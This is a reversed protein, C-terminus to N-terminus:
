LKIKSFLSTFAKTITKTIDDLLGGDGILKNITEQIKIKEIGKIAQKIKYQLYFFLFVCWILPLMYVISPPLFVGLALAITIVPVILPLLIQVFMVYPLIHFIPAIKTITNWVKGIITFAVKFGPGLIKFFVKIIGGFAGGLGKLINDFLGKIIKEIKKFAEDFFGTIGKAVTKAGKEIGKGADKAGKKIGKGTKKVVGGLGKFHEKKKYNLTLIYISFLIILLIM